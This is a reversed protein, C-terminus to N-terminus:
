MEKGYLKILDVIVVGAATFGGVILAHIGVVKIVHKNMTKGRM